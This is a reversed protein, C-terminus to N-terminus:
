SQIWLVPNAKQGVAGRQYLLYERDTEMADEEAPASIVVPVDNPPDPASPM